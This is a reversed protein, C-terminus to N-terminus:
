LAEVYRKASPQHQGQEIGENQVAVVSCGAGNSPERSNPSAVDDGPTANQFDGSGAGNSPHLTTASQFPPAASCLPTLYRDFADAFQAREYGHRNTPGIRVQRSKIRFPKLLRSLGTATLAKGHRWESWPREELELLASLLDASHIREVKAEDFVRRIDELIMPGISDDDDDATLLRFADMAHASWDAGATEAIALLPTWNDIARDNSSAPLAPAATRLVKLDSFRIEGRAM